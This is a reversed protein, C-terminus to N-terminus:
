NTLNKERLKNMIKEVQTEPPIDVSNCEIDIIIGKEKYYDVLPATSEEYVKLRQEIAEPKDDDRQYLEGGCEDCIGEVKSKLYLKNYIKTCDKCQVRSSLRAISVERPVVLNIVVDIDSFEDLKNAQELSRPFGDLIFGKQADEQELRKKLIRMVIDNSVLVGKSQAEKISEGFEEDDRAARLLDGMSIVPIDNLQPAMRSSYTGKGSGQPGMIVIKVM